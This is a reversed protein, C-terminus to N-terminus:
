KERVLVMNNQQRVYVIYRHLIASTEVIVENKEAEVVSHHKLM